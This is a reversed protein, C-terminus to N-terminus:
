NLNIVGYVETEADTLARTGADFKNRGIGTYNKGNITFTAIWKLYNISYRERCFEYNISHEINKQRIHNLLNTGKCRNSVM